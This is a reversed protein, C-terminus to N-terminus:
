KAFYNLVRFYLCMLKINQGLGVKLVKCFSKISKTFCTHKTKINKSQKSFISNECIHLAFGFIGKTVHENVHTYVNGLTEYNKSKM